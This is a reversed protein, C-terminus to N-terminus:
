EEPGADRTRKLIYILRDVDEPHVAVVYDDEVDLQRISITDGSKWSVEIGFRTELKM